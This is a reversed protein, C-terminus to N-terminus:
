LDGRQALIGRLDSQIRQHYNTYCIRGHDWSKFLWAKVPRRRAIESEYPGALKPFWEKSLGCSLPLQDPRLYGNFVNDRSRRLRRKEDEGALIFDQAREVLELSAEDFVASSVIVLDIDSGPGFPSLLHDSNLSFGLKASGIMRIENVSLGIKAAVESQLSLYGEPNSVFAYPLGALIHDRVFEPAPLTAALKMLDLLPAAVGM